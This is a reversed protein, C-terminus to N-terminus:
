RKRAVTEFVLTGSGGSENPTLDYKALRWPHPQSGAKHLFRALATWPLDTVRLESRRVQWAPHEPSLAKSPEDKVSTVHDELYVSVLKRLPAPDDLDARELDEPRLNAPTALTAFTASGAALERLQALRKQKSEIRAKAEKTEKVASVAKGFGTILVILALLTLLLSKSM